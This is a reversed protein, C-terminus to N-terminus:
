SPKKLTLKERLKESSKRLIPYDKWIAKDCASFRECLACVRVGREMACTKAECPFLSPGSKCGKCHIEQPKMGRRQAAKQRLDNDNLQTANFADCYHCDASCYALQDINIIEDEDFFNVDDTQANLSFCFSATLTCRACTNLFERRTTSM